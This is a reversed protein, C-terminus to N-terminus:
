PRRRHIPHMGIEKRFAKDQEWARRRMVEHLVGQASSANALDSEQIVFTPLHGYDRLAKLCSEQHAKLSDGHAKCEVAFASFRMKTDGFVFLDPWGKSLVQCGERLFIDAVRQEFINM